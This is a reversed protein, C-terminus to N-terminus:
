HTGLSRSVGCKLSLGLFTFVHRLATLKLRSICSFYCFNKAPINITQPNFRFNEADDAIDLTKNFIRVQFVADVEDIITNMYSVITDPILVEYTFDDALNASSPMDYTADFGEDADVSFDGSDEGEDEEEEYSFDEEDSDM